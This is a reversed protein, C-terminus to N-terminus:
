SQYIWLSRETGVMDGVELKPAGIDRRRETEKYVEIRGEGRYMDQVPESQKSGVELVLKPIEKPRDALLFDAFVSRIRRYFSYGDDNDATTSDNTAKPDTHVAHYVQNLPVIL